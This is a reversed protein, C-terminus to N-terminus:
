MTSCGSYRGPTSARALASSSDITGNVGMGSDIRVPLKRRVGIKACSIACRFAVRSRTILPVHRFLTHSASYDCSSHLQSSRRDFGLIRCGPSSTWERICSGSSLCAARGISMSCSMRVRPLGARDRHCNTREKAPDSTTVWCESGSALGAEVAAKLARFKGEQDRRILDRIYESDNTFRGAEIQAKIWQDQKDTLTVAKRIAGM